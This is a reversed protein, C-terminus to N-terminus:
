RRSRRWSAPGTARAPNADGEMLAKMPMGYCDAVEQQTFQRTSLLEADKPSVGTDEFEMGEELIPDGKLKGARWREVFRDADEKSWRPAELPRKIHGGKLGSRGVRRDELGLSYGVAVLDLGTQGAGFAEGVDPLAVNAVALNLNAV